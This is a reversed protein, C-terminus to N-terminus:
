IDCIKITHDEGLNQLFLLCYKNKSSMIIIIIIIIIIIVVIMLM